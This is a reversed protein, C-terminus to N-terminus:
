EEATKCRVRHSCQREEKKKQDDRRRTHYLFLLSLSHKPEPTFACPPQPVWSTNYYEDWENNDHTASKKPVPSSSITKSVPTELRQTQGLSYDYEKLSRRMTHNSYGRGAVIEKNKNKSSRPHQLASLNQPAPLTRTEEKWLDKKRLNQIRKGATTVERHKVRKKSSFVTSV